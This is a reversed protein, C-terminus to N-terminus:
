KKKAARHRPGHPIPMSVPTNYTFARVMTASGGGVTIVVDVPGQFHAVTQATVTTDNVVTVNNAVGGGITVAVMGSSFGSGTLTVTTGGDATGSVPAIGALNISVPANYTFGNTVTASQSDPNTVVVNVAVTPKDGNPHAPATAVMTTASTVSVNTGAVGGFSVTAGSVFGTGTITVVTGGAQPGSAPNLNTVTPAAVFTFGTKSGTGGDSNRVTVTVSGAAHAPSVATLSTASNRITSTADTGGFDVIAGSLFNTGTIQVTTGGSAKGSTPTFSTITPSPPAANVTFTGSMGSHGTGCESNTCFFTFPGSVDAIFHFTKMVGQHLDGEAIGVYNEIAMGHDADTAVAHIIVDDGQNVTLPSPTIDYTFKKAVVNFTRTVGTPTARMADPAAVPFTGTRQYEAIIEDARADTALQEATKAAPAAAAHMHAHDHAPAPPEDALLPFSM